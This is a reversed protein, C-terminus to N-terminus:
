EPSHPTLMLETGHTSFDIYLYTKLEKKFPKLLLPDKLIINHIEEQDKQTWNYTIRIGTMERPNTTDNSLDANQIPAGNVLSRFELATNSPYLSVPETGQIDQRPVM